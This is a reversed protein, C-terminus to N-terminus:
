AALLMPLRPETGSGDPKLYTRQVGVAKNEASALLAVLVPHLNGRTGYRLRAFRISAPIPLHLGRGRLYAEAPTGAVAVANRWITVADATTDRDPEPPLQRHVVMPVQGGDLMAAAEKLGVGHLRQLYDLVDGTAGCGFCHFREGGDFITFSPSRDSHLHSPLPPM